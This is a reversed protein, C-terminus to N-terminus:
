KFVFEMIWVPKTGKGDGAGLHWCAGIEDFDHPTFGFRVRDKTIKDLSVEDGTYKGFEIAAQEISYEGSIVLMDETFYVPEMFVEEFKGM